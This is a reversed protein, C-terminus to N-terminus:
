GARGTRVKDRTMPAISQLVYCNVIALAVETVV